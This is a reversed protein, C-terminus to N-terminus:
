VKSDLNPGVTWRLNFIAGQINWFPSRIRAGSADIGFLPSASAIFLTGILSVAFIEGFGKETMLGALPLHAM